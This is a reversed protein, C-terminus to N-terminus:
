QFFKKSWKLPLVFRHMFANAIVTATHCISVRVAEKTARLIQLDAHNSRILFQLQLDISIEGSLILILKEINEQHSKESATLSDISREIAVDESKEEGEEGEKKGETSAADGSKEASTESCGQPKYTSSLASPIPATSRLAQLVQTLFQQFFYQLSWLQM